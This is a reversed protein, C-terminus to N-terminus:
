YDLSWWIKRFKYNCSGRFSNIVGIFYINDLEYYIILKAFIVAANIVVTIDPQAYLVFSFSIM